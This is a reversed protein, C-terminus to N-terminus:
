INDEERNGRISDRILGVVAVFIFFLSGLYYIGVGSPINVAKIDLMRPKVEKQYDLVLDDQFKVQRVKRVNGLRSLRFVSQSWITVEKGKLKELLMFYDHTMLSYTIFKDGQRLKLWPSKGRGVKYVEDVIGFRKDLQELELVPLNKQYSAQQWVAIGFVLVLYWHWSESFSPLKM